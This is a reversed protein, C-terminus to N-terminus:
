NFPFELVKYYKQPMIGWQGGESPFDISHFGTLLPTLAIAM